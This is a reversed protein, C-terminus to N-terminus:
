CSVQLSPVNNENKIIVWNAQDTWKWDFISQSKKVYNNFKLFLLDFYIPYFKVELEFSFCTQFDHVYICISTLDCCMTAKWLFVICNYYSSRYQTNCMCKKTSHENFYMIFVWSNTLHIWFLFNNQKLLFTFVRLYHERKATLCLM